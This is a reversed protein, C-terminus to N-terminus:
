IVRLIVLIFKLIINLRLLRLLRRGLDNLEILQENRIGDRQEIPHIGIRAIRERLFGRVVMVVFGICKRVLYYNIIFKIYFGGKIGSFVKKEFIQSEIINMKGNKVNDTWKKLYNSVIIWIKIDKILFYNKELVM